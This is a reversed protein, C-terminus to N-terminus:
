HCNLTFHHAGVRLLQLELWKGFCCGWFGSWCVSNGRLVFWGEAGGACYWGKTVGLFLFVYKDSFFSVGTCMSSYKYAGCDDMEYFLRAFKGGRCLEAFVWSARDDASWAYYVSSIFVYGNSRYTGRVATGSLVVVFRLLPNGQQASYYYNRITGRFVYVWVSRVM